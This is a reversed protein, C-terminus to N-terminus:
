SESISVGNEINKSADIVALEFVRNDVVKVILGMSDLVSVGASILIGFTKGIKLTNQEILNGFYSSLM